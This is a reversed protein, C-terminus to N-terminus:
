LLSPKADNDPERDHLPWLAYVFLIAIGDCLFLLVKNKGKFLSALSSSKDNTNTGDSGV